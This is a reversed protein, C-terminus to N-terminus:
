TPNDDGIGEDAMRVGDISASRLLDVERWRRIKQDLGVAEAANDVHTSYDLRAAAVVVYEWVSVGHVALEYWWWFASLRQHDPLLPGGEPTPHGGLECHFQYDKGRFRNGSRERLHRPQWMRRRTEKDSRLWEAAEEHDEAFAWALYEVEVLQRLLAMAGYRNDIELLTIAGSCLQAGIQTVTSLGVVADDGFQFPSAGSVRDGGFISGVVWLSDGAGALAKAVAHCVQQRSAASGEDEGAAEAIALWETRDPPSSDASTM